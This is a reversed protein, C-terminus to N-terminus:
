ELECEGITRVVEDESMGAEVGVYYLRRELSDAVVDLLAQIAIRVQEMDVEDASLAAEVEDCYFGFVEGLKKCRHGQLESMWPSLQAKIDCAIGVAAKDYARQDEESEAAEGLKGAFVAKDWINSIVGARAISKEFGPVMAAATVALRTEGLLEFTEKTGWWVLPVAFGVPGLWGSASILGLEGAAAGIGAIAGTMKVGADIREVDDMTDYNEILDVTVVALTVASFVGSLGAHGVAGAAALLEDATGTQGLVQAGYGAIKLASEMFDMVGALLEMAQEIAEMPDDSAPVEGKALAAAMLGADLMKLGSSLAGAAMQIGDPSNLVVEAVGGGGSKPVKVSGIGALLKKLDEERSAKEAFAFGKVLQESADGLRGALQDAQEGLDMSPELEQDGTFGSDIADFARDLREQDDEVSLADLLPTETGTESAEFAQNASSTSQNQASSAANSPTNSQASQRQTKM